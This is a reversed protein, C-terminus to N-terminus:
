TPVRYKQIHIMSREAFTQKEGWVYAHPAIVPIGLGKVKHPEAARCASSASTSADPPLSFGPWEYVRQTARAHTLTTYM